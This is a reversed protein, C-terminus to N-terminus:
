KATQTYSSMLIWVVGKRVCNTQITNMKARFLALNWSHDLSNMGLIWMSADLQMSM